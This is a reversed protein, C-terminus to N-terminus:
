FLEYNYYPSIQGDWVQIEKKKFFRFLFLIDSIRKGDCKKM